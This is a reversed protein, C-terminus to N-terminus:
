AQECSSCVAAVYPLCNVLAVDTVPSTHHSRAQTDRGFTHLQQRSGFRTGISSYEALLM